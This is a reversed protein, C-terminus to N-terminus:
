ILALRRGMERAAECDLPFQEQHHQKVAAEDFRSAVYKSYDEFQQTQSAIVYESEGILRRTLAVLGQSFDVYMEKPANMTLVWGVRTQKPYMPKRDVDYTMSPFLYRELFSRTAGTIDSYYIPSGILLVDADIAKELIPTLGDKIACHGLRNGDKLKCSHCGYCGKFDIDYLYIIEGTAGGAAEGVSMAGEFASMLMTATNRQRNAAGSVALVNMTLKGERFDSLAYEVSLQSKSLQRVTRRTGALLVEWVERVKWV